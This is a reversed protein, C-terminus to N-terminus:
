VTKGLIVHINKQKYTICIIRDPVCLLICLIHVHGENKILSVLHLM